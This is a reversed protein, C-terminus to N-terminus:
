LDVLMDKLTFRSNFIRIDKYLTKVKIQSKKCSEGKMSVAWGQANVLKLGNSFEAMKKETKKNAYVSLLKKIPPPHM